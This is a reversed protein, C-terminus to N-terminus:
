SPANTRSGRHRSPAALWTVLDDIELQILSHDTGYVRNVVHAESESRLFLRSREILSEPIVHDRSGTAYFVDLGRLRGRDMPLDSDFSLTGHLLAVGTYREPDNLALAGAMAAGGSYGVLFIDECDGIETRLWSEVYEISSQLSAAIPRGIGRNEFWAFGSGEKVPGRLAVVHASNPLGSALNFIERENSGRGHFLVIAASAPPESAIRWITEPAATKM